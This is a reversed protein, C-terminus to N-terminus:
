SLGPRGLSPREPLSKWVHCMLRRHWRQAIRISCPQFDLTHVIGEGRFGFTCVEVLSGLSYAKSTDSIAPRSPPSLWYILSMSYRGAEYSKTLVDLSSRPIGHGDDKVWCEWEQCDIGIDLHSASADLANQVLESLVQPLSTLIQTSRLRTRVPESLTQLSTMSQHRIDAGTERNNPRRHHSDRAYYSWCQSM